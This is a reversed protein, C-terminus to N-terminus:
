SALFQVCCTSCYLFQLGQGCDLGASMTPERGQCSIELWIHAFAVTSMTSNNNELLFHTKSIVDYIQRKQYPTDWELVARLWEHVGSSSLVDEATVCVSLHVHVV